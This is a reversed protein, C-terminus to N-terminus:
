RAHNLVVEAVRTAADPHSLLRAADSMEARRGQDDLLPRLVDDLREASLEDDELVVAAGAAGLVSANAHQHAGPARPLPVLVAPVGTACLEAVTTAGARCVAVDSGAWVDAMRNEFGVVRWREETVSSAARRALVRDLDRRGTVHYITAPPSTAWRLALGSVADNVSGAGLSGSMVAVVLGAEPLDLALRAQARTTAGSAVAAIEDRVPTGTVVARRDASPLATAIAVAFRRLVRHVLGPEADLDVLVLPTGTLVAGISAAFAAYGGVSVVARPRRRAVLGVGRVAAVVLGAVAAANAALAVPTMRRRLGRGPLLVVEPGLDALLVGDQGRASGVIVLEEPSLGRRLLAEAIARLPFVHGGTGGGTLVIPRKV